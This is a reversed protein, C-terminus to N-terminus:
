LVSIVGWGVAGGWPILKRNLQGMISDGRLVLSSTKLHKMRKSFLNELAMRTLGTAKLSKQAMARALNHASLLSGVRMKDVPELGSLKGQPYVLCDLLVSVGGEKYSIDEDTQKYKIWMQPYM